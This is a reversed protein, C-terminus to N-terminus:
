LTRFPGVHESHLQMKMGSATIVHLHEPGTDQGKFERLGTISETFGVCVRNCITLTIQHTTQQINPKIMATKM